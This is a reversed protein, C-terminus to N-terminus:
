ICIQVAVHILACHLHLICVSFCMSDYNLHNRVELATVKTPVTKIRGDGHGLFGKGAGCTYAAGESDVFISHSVGAAAFVIRKNRLVSVMTPQM